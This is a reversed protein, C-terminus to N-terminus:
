CKRLFVRLLVVSLGHGWRNKDSFVLGVDAVQDHQVQALGAVPDVRDGVARRRQGALGLLGAVQQQQLHAAAEAQSAMAAVRFQQLAQCGQGGAFAPYQYDQHEVM